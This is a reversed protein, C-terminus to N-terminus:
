EFRAPTYFRSATPTFTQAYEQLDKWSRRVPTVKAKVFSDIEQQRHARYTSCHDVCATEGTLQKCESSEGTVGDSITFIDYCTKKKTGGIKECQNYQELCEIQGMRFAIFEEESADLYTLYGGLEADVDVWWQSPKTDMSYTEAADVLVAIHQSAIDEFHLILSFRLDGSTVLYRHAIISASLTAAQQNKDAYNDSEPPAELYRLMLTELDSEYAEVQHMNHANIWNGVVAEVEEQVNGWYDFEPANVARIISVVLDLLSFAIQWPTIERAAALAITTNHGDIPILSAPPSPTPASPAAASWGALLFVALTGLGLGGRKLAHGAM